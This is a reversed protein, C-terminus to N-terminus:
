CGPTRAVSAGGGGGCWHGRRARPLDSTLVPPHFPTALWSTKVPPLRGTLALTESPFHAITARLPKQGDLLPTALLITENLNKNKLSVPAVAVVFVLSAGVTAAKRKAVACMLYTASCRHCVPAEKVEQISREDQQRSGRFTATVEGRGPVESGNMMTRCTNGRVWWTMSARSVGRSPLSDRGSVNARARSTLAANSAFINQAISVNKKLKKTKTRFM